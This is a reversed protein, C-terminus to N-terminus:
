ARGLVAPLYSTSQLRPKNWQLPLWWFFSSNGHPGKYHTPSDDSRSFAQHCEPAWFVYTKDESRTGFSWNSLLNQRHLWLGGSYQMSQGVAFHDSWTLHMVNLSPHYWQFLLAHGIIFNQSCSQTRVEPLCAFSPSLCASSWYVPTSIGDRLNVSSGVSLFLNIMRFQGDFHVGTDFSFSEIIWPCSSWHICCKLKM